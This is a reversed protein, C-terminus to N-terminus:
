FEPSFLELQEDKLGWCPRNAGGNAAVFLDKAFLLLDPAPPLAVLFRSDLDFANHEPGQFSARPLSIWGLLRCKRNLCAQVCRASLV